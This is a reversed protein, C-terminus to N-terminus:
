TSSDGDAGIFSQSADKGNEATFVYINKTAVGDAPVEGSIEIDVKQGNKLEVDKITYTGDAEMDVDSLKVTRVEKGEVMVKVTLGSRDLSTTVTFFVNAACSITGALAEQERGSIDEALTVEKMALEIAPEETDAADAGSDLEEAQGEVPELDILYNLLAKMALAEPYDLATDGAGFYYGALKWWSTTETSIVIEDPHEVYDAGYNAWYWIATQTATMVFGPTLAASAAALSAEIESLDDATFEIEALEEDTPDSEPYEDHEVYYSEYWKDRKKDRELAAKTQTEVADRLTDPLDEKTQGPLYGNELIAKLHGKIEANEAEDKSFEADALSVKKYVNGANAPIGHDACYVYYTEGDADELEYFQVPMKHNDVVNALIASKDGTGGGFWLEDEELDPKTTEEPYPTAAAGKLRVNDAKIWGTQENGDADKYKVHYYTFGTDWKNVTWGIVQVTTDTNIELYGDEDKKLAGNEDTQSGILTVNNGDDDYINVDVNKYGDHDYSWVSYEGQIYGSNGALNLWLPNDEDSSINVWTGEVGYVPLSAGNHWGISGDGDGSEDEGSAEPTSYVYTGIKDGYEDEAFQVWVRNDSGAHYLDNEEDLLPDNEWPAKCTWYYCDDTHNHEAPNVPDCILEYCGDWVSHSHEEIGCGLEYCESGYYPGDHYHEEKGCIPDDSEDTYCEGEHSHEEKECTLVYCVNWFHSHEERGCVPKSTDYCDYDHDGNYHSGWVCSLTQECSWGGQNHTHEVDAAFVTLNSLSVCMVAALFLSLGRRLSVIKREKHRM